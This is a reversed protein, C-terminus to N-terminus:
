NESLAKSLWYIMKYTRINRDSIIGSNNLRERVELRLIRQPSSFFLIVMFILGLMMEVIFVVTISINYERLFTAMIYILPGIILSLIIAPLYTQIYEIPTIKCIKRTIFIYAVFRCFEGIVLASAFGLISYGRLLYFLAGLIILYVVQLFLKINLTATAECLIGGFHSLLNFPVAISLLQLVPIATIWKEGLIVLVIERSASAMGLCTPFLIASFVMITSLYAKKLREIEKQVKSFSPFLVISFSSTIYQAPLNVLMSARNYIGLSAAGLFHGITLMDLNSGIFEFFSIVSIRGGFSYLPKYYKWSYIFSLRHQCFIYALFALFASQSLTGVVLSWVGFGNYALLVGIIGYGVVYSFIETVALAGFAFNRRLLSIATTSLGSLFFSLAMIRIIPVIKENDFIYTALPACLCVLTTFLMGLFFASTFSARVDEDSIEKKQIL